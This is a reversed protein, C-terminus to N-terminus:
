HVYFLRRMCMCMVYVYKYMGIRWEIRDWGMGTAMMADGTFGCTGKSRESREM